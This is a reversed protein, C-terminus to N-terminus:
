NIGIVRQYVRILNNGCFFFCIAHYKIILIALTHSWWPNWCHSKEEKLQNRNSMSVCQTLNDAYFFFWMAHYKIILFALTHPWRHWDIPIPICKKSVFKFINTKSFFVKSVFLVKHTAIAHLVLIVQSYWTKYPHKSKFVDLEIFFNKRYTIASNQM